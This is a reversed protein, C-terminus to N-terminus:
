FTKAELFTLWDNFHPCEQRIADIGISSAIVPGDIRKKYKPYLRRLRSSPCGSPNDDIDEPSLQTRIRELEHRHEQGLANTIASTSSFLLAEFEHLSLYAHFRRPDGQQKAIVSHEM